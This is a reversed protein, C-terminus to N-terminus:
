VARLATWAPVTPWAVLRVYQAWYLGDLPAGAVWAASVAGALEAKLELEHRVVPPRDYVRLYRESSRSGVYLTTRDGYSTSELRWGARHTRTTAERVADYLEPPRLIGRDDDQALDLRRTRITSAITLADPEPMRELAGQRVEVYVTGRADGQGDWYVGISWDRTRFGKAYHKAGSQLWDEGHTRLHQDWFTPGIPPGDPGRISGSLWSVRPSGEVGTNGVPPLLGKEALRSKTM